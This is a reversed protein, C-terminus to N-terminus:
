KEIKTINWRDYSMLEVNPPENAFVLVHPSNMLVTSCEYKTSAFCGNKIEEIGTYSIYDLNHRPTDFIVLEPYTNYKEKYKIILYKMDSAKGSCILADYHFCLYKVLASKGVGGKREWYWFITRDDPEDSIISVIDKQWKYLQEKKIIKLPKELKINNSKYISGTRTEEKSCYKIADKPSKCKEWHIKKNDFKNFPRDKKKFCIYGQLHPTGNEGTEEQFIWSDCIEPVISSIKDIDTESYNNLTFFWHKAPSPQPKTNGEVSSETSSNSSNIM